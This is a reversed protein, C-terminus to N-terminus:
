VCRNGWENDRPLLWAYKEPYIPTEKSVHACDKSPKQVITTQKPGGEVEMDSDCDSDSDSESESVDLIDFPNKM